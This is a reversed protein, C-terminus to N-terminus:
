KDMKEMILKPIVTSLYQQTFSITQRVGNEIIITNFNNKFFEEVEKFFEEKSKIDFININLKEKIKKATKNIEKLIVKKHVDEGLIPYIVYIDGFRSIQDYRFKVNKNLFEVIDKKSIMSNKNDYFEKSINGSIFMLLRTYKYNEDLEDIIDKNKEKEIFDNEIYELLELIDRNSFENILINELLEYNKEEAIKNLKSINSSINFKEGNNFFNSYICSEMLSKNLNNIRIEYLKNLYEKSINLLLRILIISNDSFYTRGNDIMFKNNIYKRMINFKENNNPNESKQIQMMEALKSYEHRDINEIISNKLETIIIKITNFDFLSGESLLKWLDSLRTKYESQNLKDIEDILLVSQDKSYIKNKLLERIISDYAEYKYVNNFRFISYTDVTNNCEINCFKNEIDLYKVLKKVLDTKGVGSLGWLNIITPRMCIEPYLYWMRISEIIDDIVKDIGYFDQKLKEKANILKQKKENLEDM